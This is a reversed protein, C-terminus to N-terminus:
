TEDRDKWEEPFLLLLDQGLARVLFRQMENITRELARGGIIWHGRGPIKVVKAGLQEGLATVRDFPAFPDSEGAVILRPAAEAAADLSIEGRAADIAALGADSVMAAIMVDRQYPEADAIFDFLARGSPPRIPRKRWLAIRNALGGVLPSPFGPLMPALAVAAKVAPKDALALAVLGGIGYGVAVVERGLAEIAELALATLEAFRISGLNPAAARIDPAYVEWGITALYGLLVALHRSTTFLEPLLVIPIAFKIPEPREVVAAFRGLETDVDPPAGSRRL